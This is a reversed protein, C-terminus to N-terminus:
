YAAEERWALVVSTDNSVQVTCAITYNVGNAVGTSVVKIYRETSATFRDALGPNTGTILLMENVSAYGDDRTGMIEDLGTRGKIIEEIEWENLEPITLLIDRSAANVNVKGEGWTTLWRAIGVYPPDGDEDAPGGYLIREDFGKILLMEDVSDLPANKPEYGRDEYFADDKEAGNALHTENGDIWDKFCDILEDWREQPVGGMDLVEEWEEDTLRNVNRREEEPVIDVRFTGNGLDVEQGRVGVGRQLMLASMYVSDEDSEEPAGPDAENRLEIVRLSWEIGARALAEARTRKRYHSTIEAEVRMDFSFSSVLLGLILLVWMTVILAAGRKRGLTPHRAHGRTWPNSPRAIM